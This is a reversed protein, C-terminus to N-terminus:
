HELSLASPGNPKASVCNIIMIRIFWWKSKNIPCISAHLINIARADMLLLLQIVYDYDNSKNSTVTLQRQVYAYKFFTLCRMEDNIIYEDDIIMM